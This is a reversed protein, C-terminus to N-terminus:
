GPLLIRTLHYASYLNIAILNELVGDAENHVSGPIFQGANNVLVDLSQDQEKKKGIENLVWKGFARSQTKDSLDFPKAKITLGPYKAALQELAKYLLVENQSTLLLEFGNKAFIEATAFGLGRSAGTIVANM